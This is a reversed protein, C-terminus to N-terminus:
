KLINGRDIKSRFSKPTDGFMEKFCKIFYHSQSFGTLYAIEAVTLDTNKLMDAAKRIRVDRIFVNPTEGIIVKFKRHLVTKSVNMKFAFEDIKFNEDMLHEEIIKVARSFFDNKPANEIEQQAPSSLFEHMIQKRRQQRTTYVNLVQNMLIQSDFPKKIYFDAGAKYGQLEDETSSKASLLVVFIDSLLPTTKIKSCLILGDMEPMMVDSIVVEPLNSRIFELAEIGNGATTVQFHVSLEKKLYERLQNNDEVLLISPLEDLGGAEQPNKLEPIARFPFTVNIDTGAGQKSQIDLEGGLRDVFNRVIYLGLGLGQMNNRYKAEQYFKNFVKSLNKSDIGAGTDAIRLMFKEEDKRDLLVNISGGEPTFKISNSLLNYLVRELKVTDFFITLEMIKPQYSLSIQKSKALYDFANVIVRCFSVLEVQKEKIETDIFEARKLDLISTFIDSLYTANKAIIEVKERNEEQMNERLLDNAPAIILSFPTLLDHSLGAFFSEKEQLLEEKKKKEMEISRLQQRRKYYNRIVFFMTILSLIICISLLVYFWGTKWWPPLIKMRLNWIPEDESFANYPRISLTYDGPQLQSFTLPKTIDLYQWSDSFGAIRYQYKNRYYDWGIETFSLSIWKCLWSLTVSSIYEAEDNLVVKGYVKEGVNVKNHDIQLETLVIKTQDPRHLFNQPDIMVLNNTGGFAIQEKGAIEVNSSSFLIQDGFVETNAEKLVREDNVFCFIRNVVSFWLNNEADLVLDYIAGPPLIEPPFVNEIEYTGSAYDLKCIGISTGLWLCKNKKDDALSYIIESIKGINPIDETQSDVTNFLYLGSHSSIWLRENDYEAFGTIEDHGFSDYRVFDTFTQAKSDYKLSMLGNQKTGLWICSDSNRFVSTVKMLNKHFLQKLEFDPKKEGSFTAYAIGADDHGVILLEEDCYLSLIYKTFSTNYDCFKKPILQKRAVDYLYLGDGQTGVLLQNNDYNRIKYAASLGNQNIPSLYNIGGSGETNLRYLGNGYTGVWTKNYKDRFFSLIVPANLKPKSTSEVVGDPIIEVIKMGEGWAGLYFKHNGLYHARYLNTHQTLYKRTQISSFDNGEWTIKLLGQQWTTGWLTNKEETDLFQTIVHSESSDNIWKGTTIDYLFYGNYTGAWLTGEPKEIFSSAIYNDFHKTVTYELSKGQIPELKYVGEEWSGLWINKRSDEYISIVRHPYTKTLRSIPIFQDKKPDYIDVGGAKLGIWLLGNSDFLLTEINNESLCNTSNNEKKYVKFKKGDFRNLGENTGIWLFNENECIATVDTGLLGEISTYHKFERAVSVVSLLFSLITFLYKM